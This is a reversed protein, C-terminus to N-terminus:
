YAPSLTSPLVRCSSQARGEGAAPSVAGATHSLSQIISLSENDSVSHGSRGTEASLGLNQHETGTKHGQKVVHEFCSWCLRSHLGTGGCLIFM